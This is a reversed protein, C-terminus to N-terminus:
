WAGRVGFAPVIPISTVPDEESYDFNWSMVEVNQANTANQLDLYASLEWNDFTWAKDVRVDLSVFPPLRAGDREGFVPEYARADLDYIRNVVETYPNGTGYRGRAGIRWDKPLETTGLATLVVPQDYEFLAEDEGERDTRLSRSVTAALWAASRDTTLKAIAEVGYIRGVGENAYPGTDLPGTPPPGSFFRFADERGVVLDTLRNAYGAIETDFVPTWRQEWGVSAQWSSAAELEPREEVQRVTPFQSYRGYSGEFVTAADGIRVSARPDIASGTWPGYSAVDGRLGGTWRVPGTRLTGEAYGAPLLLPVDAVERVGFAPVDYESKWSGGIVDVGLRAGWLGSGVPKAVEDRFSVRFPREFAEGDPAIAFSQNEPGGGISLENSFGAGLDERSQLRLKHFWTTLGIQVEDQEDADQGVVRFRDDSSLWLLDFTGGTPTEALWRLQGDYYRPARVAADGAGNLIPNLLADVYSRRGSFSLANSSGIRQQVFATTQFLDVSVYGNSAEPLKVTTRLDVVGGLTRGYRVGYSGPLFGVEEILDGNVVTSLGAFHFVIPISTGDLYYASDEPATGRILLQGINLPPRAVGPLNQVARVVDGNTGPLYRIEESTLVRETVEPTLRKGVVDIEFALDDPAVALTPFFKVETATGAVLEVTATETGYGGGLVEVTWPGPELADTSARGEADTLLSRTIEGRTALVSLGEVPALTDADRVIVELVPAALVEAPEPATESAEAPAGPPASESPGVPTQAFSLGILLTLPLM